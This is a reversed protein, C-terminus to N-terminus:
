RNTEKSLEIEDKGGIESLESKKAVSIAPLPMIAQRIATITQPDSNDFYHTVSLM